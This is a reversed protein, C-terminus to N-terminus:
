LSFSPVRQITGKIILGMYVKCLQYKNPIDGKIPCRFFIVLLLSTLSQGRITCYEEVDSIAPLFKFAEHFAVFECDLGLLEFAVQSKDSRM